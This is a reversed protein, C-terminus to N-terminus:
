AYGSAVFAAKQAVAAVRRTPTDYGRWRTATAGFEGIGTLHQMAELQDVHLRHYFPKALDPLRHPYLSYKTWWGIDYRPLTALLCDTSAALMEKARTDRLAIYVDRLGWLAYIWGNLIQSPPESPAEELVPGFETEIVLDSSVELLPLISRLALDAYREDSTHTYARVFVSAAQAQAMASYQPPELRYKRSGMDYRWRLEEGRREARDALLDCLPLFRAEAGAEGALMREWWGLALQALGTPLLKEPEAASPSVTKARMDIFYGHIRDTEVFAGPLHAEYGVGRSFASKM